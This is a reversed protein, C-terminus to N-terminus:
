KVLIKKGDKIYLGKKLQSSVKRGSLDYVADDNHIIFQSNHISEIDNPNDLLVIERKETVGKTPGQTYPDDWCVILCARLAGVIAKRQNSDDAQCDPTSDIIDIYFGEQCNMEASNYSGIFMAGKVSVTDSLLSELELKSLDISFDENPIIIYPTRAKPEREETFIIKGEECRNLGYYKGKSADPTTPLIITAMQNETFTVPADYEELPLVTGSFVRKFKPIESTQAYIIMSDSVFYFTDYRLNGSFTGRVVLADLHTWRFVSEGFGRVSHPIDLVRLSECNDFTYAEIYDINESLRVSKLNRCSDFVGFSMHIVSNPIKVTCLYDNYAFADGGIWTVCDPVNYTKTRAGAPYCYLRSKDKSFLVGDVSCMSPNEEDVEIAELSTCGRFPNKCDDYGAYHEIDTVTKPIRVKTLTKCFDFALWEIMNVTYKQEEYTVQEPIVLEGEWSNVNAVMATHSYESLYYLLGDINVKEPSGPEDGEIAVINGFGSWPETAKYKDISGAPVHLTASAIPTGFFAEVDTTPVSEARCYIDELKDCHAFVHNSINTVGEPIIVSILSTCSHFAKPGIEKLTKPLSISELSECEAFALENISTLGNNIVVSYLASCEKFANCGITKVSSPIVISTINKMQFFAYDGIKDVIYEKGDVAFRELIVIEAKANPSGPQNWGSQGDDTDIWEEGQKVEARNGSPDYTYIVNSVPDIYEDAFCVLFSVQLLLFLLIRKM